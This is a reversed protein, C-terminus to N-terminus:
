AKNAEFNKRSVFDHLRIAADCWTAYRAREAPDVGARRIDTVRAQCEAIADRLVRPLAGADRAAKHEPAPIGLLSKLPEDMTVTHSLDILARSCRRWEADDDFDRIRSAIVAATAVLKDLREKTPVDDAVTQIRLGEPVCDDGVAVKIHLIPRAPHDRPVTGCLKDRRFFHVAINRPEAVDGWLRGHLEGNRLADGCLAAFRDAEDDPVYSPLPAFRVADTALDNEYRLIVNHEGGFLREASDSHFWIGSTSRSTTVGKLLLDADDTIATIKGLKVGLHEHPEMTRQESDRAMVRLATHGSVFTYSTSQVKAALEPSVRPAVVDVRMVHCIPTHPAAYPDHIIIRPQAFPRHAIISLVVAKYYDGNLSGLQECLADALTHHDAFPLAGRWSARSSTLQHFAHCLGRFIAVDRMVSVTALRAAPDHHCLVPLRALPAVLASFIYNVVEYPVTEM